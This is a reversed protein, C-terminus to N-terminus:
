VYSSKYQTLSGSFTERCKRWLADTHVAGQEGQIHRFTSKGSKRENFVTKLDKLEKPGTRNKHPINQSGRLDASKGEWAQGPPSKSGM